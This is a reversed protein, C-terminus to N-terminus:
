YAAHCVIMAGWSFLTVSDSTIVNVRSGSRISHDPFPYVSREYRYDYITLLEKGPNPALDGSVAQSVQAEWLRDVINLDFMLTTSWSNHYYTASQCCPGLACTEYYEFSVSVVPSGDIWEQTSVRWGSAAELYCSVDNLEGISVVESFVSDSMFNSLTLQPHLQWDDGFVTFVRLTDGIVACASNIGRGPVTVARITDSSFLDLIVQQGEQHTYVLGDLGGATNLVPDIDDFQSSNIVPREHILKLEYESFVSSQLMLCSLFLIVRLYVM